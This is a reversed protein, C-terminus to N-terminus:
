PSITGAIRTCITVFITVALQTKCTAIIMLATRFGKTSEAAFSTPSNPCGPCALSVGGGREFQANPQGLLLLQSLRAAMYLILLFHKGGCTPTFM